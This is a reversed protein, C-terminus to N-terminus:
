EEPQELQVVDIPFDGKQEKDVFVRFDYRGPKAFEVDRFGVVANFEPLRRGTSKPVEFDSAINVMEFGDQDNLTIRLRRKDGYEGLEPQLKVVLFMLTHKIPFTRSHISHFAGLINLKGSADVTAYDAALLMMLRM